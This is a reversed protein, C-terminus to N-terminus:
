PLEFGQITSRGADQSPGVSDLHIHSRSTTRVSPQRNQERASHGYAGLSEFFVGALFARDTAYATM